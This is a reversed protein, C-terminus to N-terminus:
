KQWKFTGIYDNMYKLADECTTGVPKKRLADITKQDVINKDKLKKSLDDLEKQKNAGQTKAEEIKKNQDTIAENATDLSSNLTAIVTQDVVVQAKYHKVMEYEFFVAICLMLILSLQWNDVLWGLVPNVLSVVNLKLPGAAAINLDSLKEHAEPIQGSINNEDAM